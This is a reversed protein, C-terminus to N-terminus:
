NVILKQIVSAQENYLKVFYIGKSYKSVDITISVSNSTAQNYILKGQLDVIELNYNENVSNLQITVSEKSPNPYMIFGTTEFSVVSLPEVFTTTFTNTIIPANFDFYIAATNPIVDGLAYGVKPKIKFYVFGNSGEADDQAAPLNIDDFFWELENGTRTVVYDHSSRLMQFTDEDLQADLEDEIRVFIAEATGINQFRVTYYLYEDTTIFDDYIIAPGHSEMKDNPDYSGIVIESLESTNNDLFLDNTDTTYSVSNTVVEDLEVNVPCFLSVEIVETTSAELNVFDITFGNAIPTLTYSPNLNVVNNFVLLDDYTFAVTGSAVDVSTLNELIITNTYTFGPRPSDASNILYVAVDQCALNDTVAFNIVEVTGNAVSVGNVSATTVSYCGTYEDYVNFSITYTDIPNTSVISFNGINSNVTNVIGDNNKEYTFFGNTFDTENADIIGNTNTDNFAKANILGVDNCLEGIDFSGAKLFVGSDFVSDLADAIVLKIHYSEGINVTSQATFVSTRGDFSIPPSNLPTYGGFYNENVAPCSTNDPHINTVSIPTNTGPLVALNTTVGQADTLLFAFGDSFSCEFSGQDYEESAMLFDFSIQNIVPIFDFEIVTANNSQIGIAQELDADGLWTSTGSSSTISSNPGTADIANGTSLLIGETFDFTDSAASFFGIGNPENGNFSTGTSYTINFIQSCDGGILVNEVLEEVSTYNTTVAVNNVDTCTIAEIDLTTTTFCNASNSALRVFITQVFATINTYSGVIPNTGNDADVSTEHYTVTVNSQGNLIETTKVSFNFAEFGDGDADCIQLPSPQIAEPPSVIEVVSSVTLQCGTAFDTVQVSYVGPQNVLFTADVVDAIVIGNVIWLFNYSGSELGTDLLVTEGECFGIDELNFNPIGNIILDVTTIAANGTNNAELRIFLTQFNPVVNGYPSILPNTNTAADQQTEHYTVIFDIPDQAGLVEADLVTLDFLAFGDNDDDCVVLNNPQNAVQAFSMISISFILFLNLLLQKM